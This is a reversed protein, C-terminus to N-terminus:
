NDECKDVGPLKHLLLQGVTCRENDHPSQISNTKKEGSYAGSSLRDGCLLIKWWPHQHGLDRMASLLVNKEKCSVRQGVSFRLVCLLSSLKDWIIWSHAATDVAQIFHALAALLVNALCGSVGIVASRSHPSRPMWQPYSSDDNRMWNRSRNQTHPNTTSFTSHEFYYLQLLRHNLAM